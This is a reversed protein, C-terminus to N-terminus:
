RARPRLRSAPFTRPTPLRPPACHLRVNYLFWAFHIGFCMAFNRKEKPLWEAGYTEKDFEIMTLQPAARTLPAVRWCARAGGARRSSPARSSLSRARSAFCTPRRTAGASTM